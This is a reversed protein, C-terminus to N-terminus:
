HSLSVGSLFVFGKAFPREVIVWAVLCERTLKYTQHPLLACELAKDRVEFKKNYLVGFVTKHAGNKESLRERMTHTMTRPREEEEEEGEFGRGTSMVTERRQGEVAGEGLAQQQLGNSESTCALM